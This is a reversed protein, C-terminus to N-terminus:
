PALLAGSETLENALDRLKVNCHQSALNLMAFAEDATVKHREMLIGKAQGIVDRTELATRLQEIQNRLDSLTQESDLSPEGEGLATVSISM